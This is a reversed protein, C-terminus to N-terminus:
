FHSQPSDQLKVPFNFCGGLEEGTIVATQHTGAALRHSVPDSTKLCLFLPKLLAMGSADWESGSAGLLIPLNLFPATRM